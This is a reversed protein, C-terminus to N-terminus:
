QPCRQMGVSGFCGYRDARVDYEAHARLYWGGYVARRGNVTPGWIALCIQPKTKPAGPSVNGCVIERQSGSGLLEQDVTLDHYRHGTYHRWTALDASLRHNIDTQRHLDNLTAAALLLGALVLLTTEIVRTM